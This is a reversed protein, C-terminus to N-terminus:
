VSTLAQAAARDAAPLRRALWDRILAATAIPQEEHALHGLGAQSLYEADSVLRAVQQSDVPPVTRDGSGTVLLIPVDLEPLQRQLPRVDWGAMLGLAASVHAPSRALRWYYEFGATDIVSGTKALVDAVVSRRAARWAFLRPLTRNDAILGAIPGYIWGAVGRLPLHAGNLSVLSRSALLGSLRLHCALAAGASHGVIVAPELQLASMLAALGEAVGPLTLNRAPGRSSFGHGPLDVTVVQFSRALEPALQRWSHSAAGAGHLLLLVPGSGWVQVHWCVGAADVFRSHERNPWDRGDRDWRLTAITPKRQPQPM